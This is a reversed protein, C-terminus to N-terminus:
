EDGFGLLMQDLLARRELLDRARAAAADRLRTFQKRARAADVARRVFPPVGGYSQGMRGPSQRIRGTGRPM